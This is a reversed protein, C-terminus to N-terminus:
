GVIIDRQALYEQLEKRTRFLVTKVKSESIQMRKAIDKVNDSYWYRRVFIVRKEKSLGALFDDIIGALLGEEFTKEVTNKDAICEELESLILDFENNRKLAKNYEYRNLAINRAIKSLFASFIKPRTPPIANWVAIYTDNECEEADSYNGVINMAIRRCLKGYKHSTETIASECRQWFLEIIQSDEM